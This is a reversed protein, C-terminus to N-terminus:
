NKKDWNIDSSARKWQTQVNKRLLFTQLTIVVSLDFYFSNNSFRDISLQIVKGTPPIYFTMINKVDFNSVFLAKMCEVWSGQLTDRTNWINGRGAFFLQFHYSSTHKVELGKKIERGVVLDTLSRFKWISSNM